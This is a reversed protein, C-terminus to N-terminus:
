IVLLATPFSGAWWPGLFFHQNHSRLEQEVLLEAETRKKTYYNQLSTCLLLLALM